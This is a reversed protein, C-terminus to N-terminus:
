GSAYLCDGALCGCGSFAGACRIRRQWRRAGACRRRGGGERGAVAPLERLHGYSGGIMGYDSPNIVAALLRVRVEGTRPEPQAVQELRLVELPQGFRHHRIAKQLIM